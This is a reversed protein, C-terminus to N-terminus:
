AVFYEGFHELQRDSNVVTVFAARHRADGKVRTLGVYALQHSRQSPSVNLVVARAEWGKFSQVTCGKVGPAHAFFQMKRERREREDRAFIHQTETGHRELVAMAELGDEHTQALVVVDSPALDPNDRLLAVVELGLQEGVSRQGAANVWRCVTRQYGNAQPHDDPVVPEVRAGQVHESAFRAVKPILDPPLRYSGDVQTWQGSFGAGLMRKEDTWTKQGYVDQTPDAVLLMEGGPKCVHQRLFNWWKLTFDQGEDVLVADFTRGHGRSYADIAEDVLQEFRDALGPLTTAISEFGALSSNEVARACLAHLSTFSIRSIDGDVQPCRRAALDHLYHPLTSNYAVVLVDKGESSLKAARAALGLSKGSGAAGRVRRMAAKSPNREINLAAESLRLPLRQDSIYEPEALARRLRDIAIPSIKRRAPQEQNTLVLLPSVALDNGGWVMVSRESNFREIQLLARADNTTYRPLVVVARVVARRPSANVDTFFRSWLADLYRAAQFKPNHRTRVWGDNPTLTEIFGDADQRYCGHGWDKVEVATVGFDAHVVVFDPQDLGLRPQVYILWGEGLGCLLDLVQQEGENLPVNLHVLEDLAPFVRAM